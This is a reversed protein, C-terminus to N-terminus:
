RPPPGYTERVFAIEEDKTKLEGDIRRDRVTELIEKFRPGPEFGIAILDEGGIAPEVTRTKTLYHSLRRRAEEKDTRAILVMLAEPAVDELARYVESPRPPPEREVVDAVRTRQDWFRELAEQLREPLALRHGVASAEEAPLPDLLALLYIFWRELPLDLDNLGDLAMVEELSQLIPREESPGAFSPHIFRLVDLEAMRRVMKLPQKEELMYRLETALRAPALRGVFDGVVAENLLALTQRGISFGLRQEFRIARFVRAPDEVFSAEHLVSITREEIDRRGEFCDVLHFADPENLKIALTNITFDRRFLDDKVSSAEVVPPAAPYEYFEVRATAVDLRFGDPLLLVATGFQEHPQLRAGLLAAMSGAVKLGDGEVVIDVDDNEIGIFLDRVLGGVAYAAMGEAEAASGAAELLRLIDPAVREVVLSKVSKKSTMVHM